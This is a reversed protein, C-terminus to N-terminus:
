PARPRPDRVVNLNPVLLEHAGQRACDLRPETHRLPKHRSYPSRVTLVAAAHAHTRKSLMHTLHVYVRAHACACAQGTGWSAVRASAHRQDCRKQTTVRARAKHLRWGHRGCLSGEPERHECCRRDRHHQEVLHTRTHTHTHTRAHTRVRKDADRARSRTSVRAHPTDASHSPTEAAM